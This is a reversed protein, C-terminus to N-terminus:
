RMCEMWGHNLIESQTGRKLFEAFLETFSMSNVHSEVGRFVAIGPQGCVVGRAEIPDGLGAQLINGPMGVSRFDADPEGGATRVQLEYHLVVPDSKV